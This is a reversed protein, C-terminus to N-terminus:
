GEFEYEYSDGERLEDMSITDQDVFIIIEPM